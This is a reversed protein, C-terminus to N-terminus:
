ALVAPPALSTGAGFGAEALAQGLRELDGAAPIGAMWVTDGDFFVDLAPVTADRRATPLEAYRRRALSTLLHVRQNDSGRLALTHGAAPDFPDSILLDILGAWDERHNEREEESPSPRPSSAMDEEAEEPARGSELRADGGQGWRGAAVERHSGREEEPPSPRPSSARNRKAEHAPPNPVDCACLRSFDASRDGSTTRENQFIRALHEWPHGSFVLIDGAVRPRLWRLLGKLAAPQDFPEGGSITVGDAQPLWPAISACVSDLTTEGQGFAWTDHSICGPCRVSCGQFWVGVRRGYGLTTVPFHLRSLFLKM